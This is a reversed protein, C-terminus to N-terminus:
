EGIWDAIVNAAARGNHWTEAFDRGQQALDVFFSRHEIIEMIVDELSDPTADVVPPASPMVDRVQTSVAGVVVRQLCMAEVATLGYSGTLVQDVVIDAKAVLSLMKKHTVSSPSVYQIHGQAELRRLAPEIM